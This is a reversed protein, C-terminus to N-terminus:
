KPIRRGLDIKKRALDKLEKVSISRQKSKVEVLRIQNIKEKDHIIFGYNKIKPHYKQDRESLYYEDRWSATNLIWKKKHKRIFGKHNHGYSIVQFKNKRLKRKARKDIHLEYEGKIFNTVYKKFELLTFKYTPDKRHIFQTIFFSKLMYLATGLLLRKKLKFPLLEFTRARPVLRELLPFEEKIALYHEYIANYGWPTLLFPEGIIQNKTDYIIKDPNVKFFIDFQSGHEIHVLGSTYEFGAFIIRGFQKKETILERVRKQVKPFVLDFDHNGPIFIIKSRPDIKLFKGLTKFIGPHAQYIKELKWLSITETIHRPHHGKYPAKLFDFTDGNLILETPYQNLFKFNKEIEKNLLDDEIFDDTNDGEGFETDSFILSLKQM